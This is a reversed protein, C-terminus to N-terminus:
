PRPRASARRRSARRPACWRPSPASGAVLMVEHQHRAAGVRLTTRNMGGSTTLSASISRASAAKSAASPPSRLRLFDPRQRTLTRAESRHRGILGGFRDSRGGSRREAAFRSRPLWSRASTLATSSSANTHWTPKTASCPGTTSGIVYTRSRRRVEVEVARGAVVHQAVEGVAGVHAHGDRQEVAEHEGAGREVVRHVVAADHQEAPGRADGVGVLHLGHRGRRRSWRAGPRLASARRGVASSSRHM